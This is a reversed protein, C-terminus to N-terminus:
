SLIGFATEAQCGQELLECARHLDIEGRAALLAAHEPLYGARALTERRWTCTLEDVAVLVPEERAANARQDPPPNPTTTQM